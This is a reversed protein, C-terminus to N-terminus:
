IYVVAIPLERLAKIRAAALITTSERDVELVGPATLTAVIGRPSNKLVRTGYAPLHAVPSANM